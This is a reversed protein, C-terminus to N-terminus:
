IVVHKFRVVRFFSQGADFADERLALALTGRHLNRRRRDHHDHDFGRRRQVRLM